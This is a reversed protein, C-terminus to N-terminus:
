NPFFSNDKHAVSKNFFSLKYSVVLIFTFGDLGILILPFILTVILNLLYYITGWLGIVRSLRWIIFLFAYSM